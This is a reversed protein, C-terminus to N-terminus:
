PTKREPGWSGDDREEIFQEDLDLTYNVPVLKLTALKARVWRCEGLEVLLRAQTLNHGSLDYNAISLSVSEV